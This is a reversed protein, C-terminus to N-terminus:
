LAVMRVNGPLQRTGGDEVSWAGALPAASARRYAAKTAAWDGSAQPISGTPNALEQAAWTPSTPLPHNM